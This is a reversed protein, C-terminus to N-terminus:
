GKGAEWRCVVTYTVTTTDKNIFGIYVLSVEAASIYDNSHVTAAQTKKVFYQSYYNIELALM